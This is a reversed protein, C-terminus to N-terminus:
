NAMGRLHETGFVDAVAHFHSKAIPDAAEKYRVELESGSLHAKIATM